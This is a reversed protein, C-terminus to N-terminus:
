GGGNRVNVAESIGNDPIVIKKIPYLPYINKKLAEIFIPDFWDIPIHANWHSMYLTNSQPHLMYNTKNPLRVIRSFQRASEHTYLIEQEHLVLQDAYKFPLCFVPINFQYSLWKAKAYSLLNDGFRGGNPEWTIASTICQTCYTVLLFSLLYLFFKNKM